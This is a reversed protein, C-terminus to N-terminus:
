SAAWSIGEGCIATISRGGRGSLPREERPTTVLPVLHPARPSRRLSASPRCRLEERSWYSDRSPALQRECAFKSRRLFRPGTGFRELLRRLHCASGLARFSRWASLYRLARYRVWYTRMHRASLRGRAGCPARAVLSRKEARWGGQHPSARQCARASALPSAIFNAQANCRVGREGRTPSCALRKPERHPTLPQAADRFPTV